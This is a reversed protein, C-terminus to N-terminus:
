RGNDSKRWEEVEYGNARLWEQIVPREACPCDAKEHVMFVLVPEEKFKLCKQAALAIKMYKDITKHCDLTNLYERYISMFACNPAEQGCNKGCQKGTAVLKNWYEESLVLEEAKFGNYVGNHDIFKHSQGQFDNFWKPNWQATSLPLMNPTFFRVQYFYSTYIKMDKNYNIYIFFALIKEKSM